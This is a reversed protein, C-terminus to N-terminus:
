GQEINNESSSENKPKSSYRSKQMTSELKPNGVEAINTNAFQMKTGQTKSKANELSFDRMRNMKTVSTKTKKAEYSMDKTGPEVQPTSPQELEEHQLRSKSHTPSLLITMNSMRQKAETKNAFAHDTRAKSNGYRRSLVSPKNGDLVTKTKISPLTIDDGQTRKSLDMGLEQKVLDVQEHLQMHKENLTAVTLNREELKVFSKDILRRHEEEVKKQEEYLDLLVEQNKQIGKMDLIFSKLDEGDKSVQKLIVDIQKTFKDDM